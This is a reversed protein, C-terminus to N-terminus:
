HFNLWYKVTRKRSEGHRYTAIVIQMQFRGVLM